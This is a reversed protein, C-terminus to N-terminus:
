KWFKEKFINANEHLEQHEKTLRKMKTKKYNIVNMAHKRFYECFKEM